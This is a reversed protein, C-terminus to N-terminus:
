CGWLQVGLNGGSHAASSKDRRNILQNRERGLREACAEVDLADLNDAYM